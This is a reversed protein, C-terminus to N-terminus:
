LLVCIHPKVAQRKQFKSVCNEGVDDTFGCDFDPIEVGEDAHAVYTDKFVALQLHPIAVKNVSKHGACDLIFGIHM